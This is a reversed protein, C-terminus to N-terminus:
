EKVIVKKAPEVPLTTGNTLKRKKLHNKDPQDHTREAADGKNEKNETTGNTLNEATPSKHDSCDDTEQTIDFEYMNLKWKAEDPDTADDEMTREVYTAHGSGDVLVVTNTRLFFNGHAIHSLSFVEIVFLLQAHLVQFLCTM